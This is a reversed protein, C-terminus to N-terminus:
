NVLSAARLQGANSAAANSFSGTCAAQGGECMDSATMCRLGGETEANHSKRSDERARRLPSSDNRKRGLRYFGNM